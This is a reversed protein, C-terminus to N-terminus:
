PLPPFVWYGLNTLSKWSTRLPIRKTTSCPPISRSVESGCWSSSWGVNIVSGFPKGSEVRILLFRVLELHVTCRCEACKFLRERVTGGRSIYQVLGGLFRVGYCHDVPCKSTSEFCAPLRQLVFELRGSGHIKLLDPVLDAFQVILAGSAEFSELRLEMTQM